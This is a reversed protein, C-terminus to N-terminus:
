CFECEKIKMSQVAGSKKKLCMGAELTSCYRVARLLQTNIINEFAHHPHDSKFSLIYPESSVKHHVSTQLQGDTNQIRLDLLSTCQSIEYTIKIDPHSDNAEKLVQTLQELPENWTLFIDDIHRLHDTSRSSKNKFVFRKLREM